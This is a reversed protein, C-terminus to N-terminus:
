AKRNKKENTTCQYQMCILMTFRWQSMSRILIRLVMVKQLRISCFAFRPKPISNSFKLLSPADPASFNVTLSWKLSAPAWCLPRQVTEYLHTLIYGIYGWPIPHYHLFILANFHVSVNSINISPLLLYDLYIVSWGHGPSRACQSFSQLPLKSSNFSVANLQKM